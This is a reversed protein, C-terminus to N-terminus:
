KAMAQQKLEPPMREIAYRLATRPMLPKNKMVYAFIENLHKKSADKLLWGYGKQVLDDADTLLADSIEFIDKLFKGRKAPIILTVAAARRLWRNDSKTWQKLNQLYEPYKDVLSGVAHNCLTDCKAWNNIYKKLWGEFIFFDALEYLAHVRYAWDCAIFAEENYNSKLLEECLRFIEKKGLPKVLTYYKAAIKNVLATKVGYAIVGEKFFRQFTSRTKEDVGQELEKRISAIVDNVM